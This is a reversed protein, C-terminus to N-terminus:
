QISTDSQQEKIPFRFRGNNYQIDKKQIEDTLANAILTNMADDIGKYRVVIPGEDSHVIAECTHRSVESYDNSPYIDECRYKGMAREQELLIDKVEKAYGILQQYPEQKSPLLVEFDAVQANAATIM